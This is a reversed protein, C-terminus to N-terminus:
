LKTKSYLRVRETKEAGGRFISVDARLNKVRSTSSSRNEQKKIPPIREKRGDGEEFEERGNTSFM